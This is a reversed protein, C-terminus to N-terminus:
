ELSCLEDIWGRHTAVRTALEVALDRARAGLCSPDRLWAERLLRLEEQIEDDEDLEAVLLPIVRDVTARCAASAPAKHVSLAERVAGRIVEDHTMPEIGYRERNRLFRPRRAAGATTQM